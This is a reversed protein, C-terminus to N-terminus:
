VTPPFPNLSLPSFSFYFLFFPCFILLSQLVSFEFSVAKFSLRSIRTDSASVPETSLDGMRIGM